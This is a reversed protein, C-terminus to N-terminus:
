FVTVEVSQSYPAGTPDPPKLAMSRRTPTGQPTPLDAGTNFTAKNSHYDSTDRAQRNVPVSQGGLLNSFEVMNAITHHALLM